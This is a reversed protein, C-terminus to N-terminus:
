KRLWFGINFGVLLMLLAFMVLRFLTLEIM